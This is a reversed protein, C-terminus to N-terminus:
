LWRAGLDKEEILTDRMCRPQKSSSELFRMTEEYRLLYNPEIKEYSQIYTGFPNLQAGRLSGDPAGYRDQYRHTNFCMTPTGVCMSYTAIASAATSILGLSKNTLALLKAPKEEMPLNVLSEVNPIDTFDYCEGPLGTIYVKVQKALLSLFDRDCQEDSNAHRDGNPDLDAYAKHYRSCFIVCDETEVDDAFLGHRVYRRPTNRFADMYHYTPRRVEANQPVGTYKDITPGNEDRYYFGEGEMGTMHIVEDPNKYKIYNIIPAQFIFLFSFSGTYELELM